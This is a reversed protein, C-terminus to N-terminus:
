AYSFLLNLDSGIKVYVNVLIWCLGLANGHFTGLFLDLIAFALHSLDLIAYYLVCSDHIAVDVYIVTFRVQHRLEKSLFSFM